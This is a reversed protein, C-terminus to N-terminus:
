LPWHKALERRDAGGARAAPEPPESGGLGDITAVVSAALAGVDYGGELCVLMPAGLEAGLERMTAAM